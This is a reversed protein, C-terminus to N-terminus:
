SIRLYDTRNGGVIEPPLWRKMTREESDLQSHTKNETGYVLGILLGPSNLSESTTKLRIWAEPFSGWTTRPGKVEILARLSKKPNENTAAYVALDIRGTLRQNSLLDAMRKECEVMLGRSALDSAIRCTIWYEPLYYLSSGSINEYEKIAVIAANEATSIIDDDSLSTQSPM